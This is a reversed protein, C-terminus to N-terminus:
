ATEAVSKQQGSILGENEEDELTKAVPIQKKAAKERFTLYSNGVFALCSIVIGIFSLLTIKQDFFMFSMGIVLCVKFGGAVAYYVSSTYKILCITIINYSFAMSGGAVILGTIKAAGENKVADVIKVHDNVMYALPMLFLICPIATYLFIDFVHLTVKQGGMFYGTLVIQITSGIVSGACILFGMMQFDPSASVGLCIGLVLLGLTATKGMSYKRGEILYSAMAITVPCFSRILQNLALTCFLLSINNLGINLCFGFPILMLKTWMAGGELPTRKYWTPPAFACAAMAGLLCFIQHTMTVFVPAPLPGSFLWKNFVNFVVNMGFYLILLVVALTLDGCRASSSEKTAAM